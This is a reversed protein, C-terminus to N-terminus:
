SDVRDPGWSYTGSGSGEQGSIACAVFSSEDDFYAIEAEHRKYEFKKEYM